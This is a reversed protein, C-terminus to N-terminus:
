VGFLCAHVIIQAVFFVSETFYPPPWHPGHVAANEKERTLDIMEMQSAWSILLISVYMVDNEQTKSGL